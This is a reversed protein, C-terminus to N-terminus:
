KLLDTVKLLVTINVTKSLLALETYKLFAISEIKKNYFKLWLFIFSHEMSFVCMVSGLIVTVSCKFNEAVEHIVAKHGLPKRLEIFSNVIGYLAMWSPHTVTFLDSLVYHM